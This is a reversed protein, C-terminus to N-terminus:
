NGKLPEDRALQSVGIDSNMASRFEAELDGRVQSFIRRAYVAHGEWSPHMAGKIDGQYDMSEQIDRFWSGNSSYPNGYHRSKCWGHEEFGEKGMSVYKWNNQSANKDITLNLQSVINQRAFLAEERTVGKGFLNMLWGLFGGTVPGNCVCSEEEASCRYTPDPYGTILVSRVRSQGIARLNKAISPYSSPGTTVSVIDREIATQLAKRASDKRYSELVLSTLIPAFGIDNGGISMVLVDIDKAAKHKSGGEVLLKQIQEIQSKLLGRRAYFYPTEAAVRPNTRALEVLPVTGEYPGLIGDNITAGSCAVSAVTFAGRVSVHVEPTSPPLGRRQPNERILQLGASIPGAWASRHCNEDMWLARKQGTDDPYVASIQAADPNGEGSGYSDGLSVLLFDEPIFTDLAITQANGDEATVSVQGRIPVQLNSVRGKWVCQESVDSGVLFSCKAPRGDVSAINVTVERDKYGSPLPSEGTTLLEFGGAPPLLAALRKDVRGLYDDACYKVQSEDIEDEQGGRCNDNRISYDFHSFLGIRPTVAVEVKIRNPDELRIAAVTSLRPSNSSCGVLTTVACILILVTCRM